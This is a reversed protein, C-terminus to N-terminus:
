KGAKAQETKVAEVLFEIMSRVEDLEKKLKDTERRLKDIDPATGFGGAAAYQLLGAV